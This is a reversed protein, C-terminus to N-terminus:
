SEQLISKGIEYSSIMIACAPAVKVIRASVGSFLGSMGEERWIKELCMRMSVNLYLFPRISSNQRQTPCSPTPSLCLKDSPSSAALPHSTTDHTLSSQNLLGEAQRRTKVVDFPTTLLAAFAGSLAGALFPISFDHQLPHHLNPPPLSSPNKIPSPPPEKIAAAIRPYVVQCLLQKTLEYSSWYIASFPVDRWLTPVLGRWLSKLGGAHAMAKYDDIIFRLPAKNEQTFNLSQMRTRMLELPSITTAALTRALAGAVAPALSFPPPHGTTQSFFTEIQAKLSDYSVFYVVTAPISMLLTPTLGRWLSTIGEQKM